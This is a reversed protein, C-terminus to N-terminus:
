NRITTGWGRQASGRLAGARANEWGRNQAPRSTSSKGKPGGKGGKGPGGQFNRAGKGGKGPIGGQLSQDMNRGNLGYGCHTKQDCLQENHQVCLAARDALLLSLRQLPSPEVHQVLVYKSSEDWFATIEEKIMMKSVVSHVIKADLDFMGVLQDIHFADYISAYSFLYTRLAEIKIKEKIMAKIKPGNQPHGLDIHEWLKLDELMGCAISWDGKQLARAASVVAEKANEPPGAFVQKEQSELARRLVRSIVRKSTPVISEMAMNPIELLMACIHHASEMVELNIHMHYPLQREREAREQEQTKEINKSFVLGQALLERAKNHMCVDMLCNHADQIKGLRFACLGMQALTRNYLIATHVDHEASKEALNGLHLLDRAEQFHDHLALHYAQCLSARTQLKTQDLATGDDAQAARAFVYHCLKAMLPRSDEPWVWEAREEEPQSHQIADYVAANLPDPKYYLHELLRSAVVCLPGVQKTDEFFKLLRKLLVMFKSSNALIQQYEDGYVDVTFQLAKYLEKDLKEACAVFREQQSKLTWPADEDAEPKDDAGGDQQKYAEVLLPLMVQIKDIADNWRELKMHDLTGGTNDFDAAVMESYIYLQELPGHKQAHTLWGHLKDFYVKRDFGRKGRTQAVELVKKMIEEATLDDKSSKQAEEEQGGGGRTSGRKSLRKKKKDDGGKKKGPNKEEKEDKEKKRKNEMEPTIVWRLMKKELAAEADGGADSSGGSKSSAADSSSDSDSDSGSSDSSDSDSDSDSDSSSSGSGDSSSKAAPGADSDSDSDDKEVESEAESEFDQPNEKFKEIHDQFARNGKRVKARLTNFAKQKSETLKEGKNQRKEQLDAHTKDVYDELSCIAKVFQGPPGGDQEVIVKLKDLMKVIAEYDSILSAFDDIKLHNSMQKIREVLQDYRKDTHSRVVRKKEVEEESSSEEAWRMKGRAPASAAPAQQEDDSDSSDSDSSSSSEGGWFKNAAM